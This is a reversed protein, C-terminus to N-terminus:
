AAEKNAFKRRVIDSRWLALFLRYHQCESAEFSVLACRPLSIFQQFFKNSEIYIFRFTGFINWSPLFRWITFEKLLKDRQM